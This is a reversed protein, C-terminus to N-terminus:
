KNPLDQLSVAVTHEIPKWEFKSFLSCFSIPIWTLM